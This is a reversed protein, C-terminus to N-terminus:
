RIPERLWCRKSRFRIPVDIVIGVASTVKSFDGAKAAHMLPTWGACLVMCEDGMERNRPTMGERIKTEDETFWMPDDDDLGKRMIPPPPAPKAPAPKPPPSPPRAAPAPASAAVPAGRGRGLGM